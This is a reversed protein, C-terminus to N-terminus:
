GPNISCAFYDACGENEQKSLDHKHCLTKVYAEKIGVAVAIESNSKGTRRLSSIQKIRNTFKKDPADRQELYKKARMQEYFNKQVLM